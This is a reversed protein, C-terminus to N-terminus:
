VRRIECFVSSSDVEEIVATLDLSAALARFGQPNVTTARFGDKCVIVGDRTQEHDIEGILGHEAQLEFWDLRARWFRESYSSFLVTGGPKAVRLSERVLTQQDVKLASIGNQVCAVVDFAGNKFGLAVADMALLHCDAAEQLFERALDLSSTSTDVGVTFGARKALERLVRGYGCGLELVVDTPRIRGLVHDIEAKLYRQVRPPAIEYCLQLRQAALKNAYYGTM